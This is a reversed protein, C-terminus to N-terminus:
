PRASSAVLPPRSATPTVDRWGGEPTWERAPPPTRYMPCDAVSHDLKGARQLAEHAAWSDAARADLLVFDKSFRFIMEAVPAGDPSERTALEIEDGVVRVLRTSNYPFDSAILIESRPFLYYRLPPEGGCTVCEYPTGAPVPSRGAVAAGDLVALSASRHANSIGGVLLLPGHAGDLTSLARIAGSHVFMSLRRGTGDLATLIGPWWTHHGQSWAIRTQGALRYVVVHGATWPPGFTGARFTVRDELRTRWKVGGQRSFCALEEQTSDGELRLTVTAVVEEEGDGDVDAIAFKSQADSPVPLLGGPFEHRWAVDGADTRATVEWPGFDLRGLRARGISGHVSRGARVFAVLGGVLLVAVLAIAVFILQSRRTPGGEAARSRDSATDSAVDSGHWRDIEEAYAFVGGRKGGPVRHVPLGREHEWRIATRVDRGLYDAIEKWSDLRRGSGNSM